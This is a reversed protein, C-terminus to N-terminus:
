DIFEVDTLWASMRIGEMRVYFRRGDFGLDVVKYTKGKLNPKSYGVPQDRFDKIIRVHRDLAHTSAENILNLITDAYGVVIAMRNAKIREQEGDQRVKAYYALALGHAEHSTQATDPILGERVM